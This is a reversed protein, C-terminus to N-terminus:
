GERLDAVTRRISAICERTLEINEQLPGDAAQPDRGAAELNEAVRDYVRKVAARTGAVMEQKRRLDESSLLLELYADINRKAEDLEAQVSEQARIQEEIGAQERALDSTDTVTVLMADSGTLPASEVSLHRGGFEGEFRDAEASLRPLFAEAAERYERDAIRNLYSFEGKEPDYIGIPHASQEIIERVPASELNIYRYSFVCLYLCIIGAAMVGPTYDLRDIGTVSRIMVGFAPLLPFASFMVIQRARDRETRLVFRISIVYGALLLGYTWLVCPTFLPGHAVREGMDLKTYFLQHWPNTFVLICIVAPGAFILTRFWGSSALRDRGALYLTWIVYTSAATTNGLYQFNAAFRYFENNGPFWLYVVSEMLRGSVWLWATVCLWFFWRWVPTPQRRRVLALIFLLHGALYATQMIFNIIRYSEM